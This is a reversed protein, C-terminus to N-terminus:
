SLAKAIITMEMISAMMELPAYVSCVRRATGAEIESMMVPMRSKQISPQSNKM